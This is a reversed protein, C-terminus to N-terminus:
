RGLDPWIGVIEGTLPVPKGTKRDLFVNTVEAQAVLTDTGKRTVTQLMVVSHETARLVATEIQLLHGLRAPSRYDINISVVAHTWGQRHCHEVLQPHHEMYQWRGEELLEIYRAHNM